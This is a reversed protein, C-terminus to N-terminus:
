LLIEAMPPIRGNGRAGASWIKKSSIELLGRSCVFWTDGFYLYSIEKMFLYSLTQPVNWHYTPPNESKHLLSEVLSCIWFIHPWFGWSRGPLILTDSQRTWVAGNIFHDRGSIQWLFGSTRRPKQRWASSKSQRNLSFDGLKKKSTYVCAIFRPFIVDGEIWIRFVYLKILGAVAFDGEWISCIKAELMSNQVTHLIMTNALRRDTATSPALWLLFHHSFGQLIPAVKIILGM